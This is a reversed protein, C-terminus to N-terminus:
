NEDEMHKLLGHCADELIDLVREFGQAGGYYPDPVKDVQHKTCFSVMPHIKHHHQKDYNRDRVNEYNHQDMTIIYDFKEFDSSPDFQRARSTLDYNRKKAHAIMRADASEGTHYGTTGASDCTYKHTLQKDSLIKNMIGEAAPSRCINGLCVFLINKM